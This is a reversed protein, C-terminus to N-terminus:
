ILFSKSLARCAMSRSAWPARTINSRYESVRAGEWSALDSHLPADRWLAARGSAVERRYAKLSCGYDHLPVGGIWSILRNAIMSPIKRTILKDQRNKRWGSVVDYGEDLKELLRVIDAPDNQLDADMPILVEGRAADIGAAMAATQGYNRKLAVVRM